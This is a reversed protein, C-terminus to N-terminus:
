GEAAAHTAAMAEASRRQTRARGTKVNKATRCVRCAHRYGKAGAVIILSGVTYPHGQSCAAPIVKREAPEEVEPAPLSRLPAPFGQDQRLAKWETPTLTGLERWEEGFGM